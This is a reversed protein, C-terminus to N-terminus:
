LTVSILCYHLKKPRFHHYKFCKSHLLVTFVQFRHPWRLCIFITPRCLSSTFFVFNSKNGQLHIVTWCENCIWTACLVTINSNHTFSHSLKKKKPNQKHIHLLNYRMTQVKVTKTTQCEFSILLILLINWAVGYIILLQLVLPIYKIQIPHFHFQMFIKTSLSVFIFFFYSCSWRCSFFVFFFIRFFNYWRLWYKM